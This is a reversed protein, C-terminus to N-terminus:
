GQRSHARPLPRGSGWSLVPGCPFAERTMKTTDWLESAAQRPCGDTPGQRCSPWQM